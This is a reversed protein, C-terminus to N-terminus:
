LGKEPQLVRTQLGTQPATQSGIKNAAEPRSKSKRSRSGNPLWGTRQNGPQGTSERNCAAEQLLADLVPVPSHPNMAGAELSREWCGTLASMLEARMAPTVHSYVAAIGSMRHGLRDHSLVEPIKLEGM